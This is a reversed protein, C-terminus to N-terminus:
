KKLQKGAAIYCDRRPNKLSIPSIKNLPPNYLDHIIQERGRQAAYSNTAADVVFDYQGLVPDRSHEGQRRRLNNARGTRMVQGTDPNILM